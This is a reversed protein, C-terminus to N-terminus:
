TAAPGRFVWSWHREPSVGAARASRAATSSPPIGIIRGAAQHASVAEPAVALRDLVETSGPEYSSRGTGTSSRSTSTTALPAGGVRTRVGTDSITGVPQTAVLRARQSSRGPRPLPLRPDRPLGGLGLLEQAVREAGGVDELESPHGLRPSSRRSRRRSSRPSSRSGCGSSRSAVSLGTRRRTSPCRRRRGCEAVAQEFMASVAARDAADAGDVLWKLTRWALAAHREEDDAIRSLVDRLVPDEARAAAEAGGGGRDEAVCAETILAEVVSRRNTDITMGALSLPGPGVDDAGYSRALGWTLRAHEVEDAAARQTAVLLEPPAGLAMLQLSVRAFSAVSAHEMAAIRTWYAALVADELPTGLAVDHTWDNRAATPAQRAAGEVRLPRGCAVPPVNVCEWRQPGPKYACFQAQPNCNADSRCLDTTTRCDLDATYPCGSGDTVVALGCEGSPATPRQHPLDGARVGVM